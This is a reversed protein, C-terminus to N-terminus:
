DLFIGHLERVIEFSDPKMEGARLLERLTRGLVAVFEDCGEVLVAV